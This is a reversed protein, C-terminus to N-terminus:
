YYGDNVGKEDGRMWMASGRVVRGGGRVAWQVTDIVVTAKGREVIETGGGGGDDVDGGGWWGGDGGRGYGDM